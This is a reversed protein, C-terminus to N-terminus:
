WMGRSPMSGYTRLAICEHYIIIIIKRENIKKKDCADCYFKCWFPIDYIFISSVEIFLYQIKMKLRDPPVFDQKLPIFLSRCHGKKYGELTNERREREWIYSCQTCRSYGQFPSATLVNLGILKIYRELTGVPGNNNWRIPATQMEIDHCM